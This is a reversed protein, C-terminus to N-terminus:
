EFKQILYYKYKQFNIEPFLEKLETESYYQEEETEKIEKVSIDILKIQPLSFIASLFKHYFEKNIMSICILQFSYLNPMCNINKYLNQIFNQSISVYNQFFFISLDKFSVNCNENFLPFNIEFNQIKDIEFAISYLREYSACELICNYYGNLSVKFESIQSNQNENIILKAIKIKDKNNQKPLNIELYKLKKFKKLLGDLKYTDQNSLLEIKLNDLSTNEGIMKSITSDEINNISLELKRIKELHIINEILKIELDMNKKKKCFINVNDLNPSNKLSLFNPIDGAFFELKNLSSYDILSSYNQGFDDIVYFNLKPFKLLSESTINSSKELILHNLEPPFNNELIINNCKGIVLKSLHNLLLLFPTEFNLERIHLLKLVKFNNLHKLLDQDKEKIYIKKVFFLTLETLNNEINFSFLTDFFSNYFNKKEKVEKNNDEDDEEEEDKEDDKEEENDDIFEEEFILQNIKNFDLKLNNLFNINNSKSFIIELNRYIINSKNMKDFVSIYDNLLDYQKIVKIPISIIRLGELIKEKSILDFFPSYIDINYEKSDLYLYKQNYHSISEKKLHNIVYQNMDKLDINNKLLDEKLKKDYREKDFKETLSNEECFLYDQLDIGCKNLFFEFYDLLKIDFKKQNFKSYKFLRYKFHADDIYKFIIECIYKSLIKSFFRKNSGSKM